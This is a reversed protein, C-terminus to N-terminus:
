HSHLMICCECFSTFLTCFGVITFRNHVIINYINIKIVFYNNEKIYKHKIIRKFKLIYHSIIPNLYSNVYIYLMDSVMSIIHFWKRFKVIISFCRLKIKFLITFVFYKKKKCISFHM